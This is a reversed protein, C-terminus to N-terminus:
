CLFLITINAKDSITNQVMKPNPDVYKQLMSLQLITLSLVGRQATTITFIHLM